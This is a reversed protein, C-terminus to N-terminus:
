KIREIAIRFKEEEIEWDKKYAKEGPQIRGLKNLTLQNGRVERLIYPVNIKLLEVTESEEAEVNVLIREEERLDMEKRMQQIRRIVERALGEALIERSIRADVYIKTNGLVSSSIYEPTTEEFIVEEPLIEVTGDSLTLEFKKNRDFAERVIRGDIDSLAALIFGARKKYKPGIKDMLPKVQIRIESFEENPELLQIEKANAQALLISKLNEIAQKITLSEPLITIRQVPRRLKLNAKQRASSIAEILGKIARMQDELTPVILEDKQKPWNCIHISEPAESSVNRVLNQYMEEVIYPAIPAMVRLLTTLTEYLTYYASLKIPDEVEIWTRKRILKVYWHSLDEIVFENLARAAKHLQYEGMNYNLEKLLSNLRSLLWKDEIYLYNKIKEFTVESPNFKDLCMFTTAFVYINWFIGFMKNITEVEELNFRLDEWPATTWLLYFRFVDAGYKEIVEEPKIVNGLSKSMKRGIKDLMFGHMLVSKYPTSNFAILGTGLQSYFWGRTQDHGECIFDAPWWEKFYHESRPYGLCAWSAVGSDIWVDLVDQVRAMRGGCNCNLTIEDIWPRHYDEPIKGFKQKIEEISGVVVHNKCKECIWIPIPIGWYRQRTICWDRINEIWDRFRASGAWEPIWKVKEIEELMRQRLATAKLFWQETARLIISTKCRWCHGYRHVITEFYLMLGKRKLDAIIEHNATKVYKGAYKGGEQTFNGSQDVPCFIPLANAKGIEFDEPGHGPAIHVCGTTGEGIVVIKSLVVRCINEFNLPVEEKLPHTYKLGEIKKGPFTELIKYQFKLKQALQEVLDKALIYIENGVQAKVYEFDSHVAVALNAPLTWPTTTWILIFENPKDRVPFKVYISPDEVDEYEIEYNSALATECRPCWNVVGLDKYLLGQEHSKKLTWWAANIFEPQVSMYANDWDMWVGIRRFQETMRDKYKLAFEKCKKVFERVGVKTEIEKKSKIGTTEEVKVEIPLGHMDWGPQDRVHYGLMTKHRIIVDKIVKNWATGLHIEGTTYPPGDMFFFKPGTKRKEKTKEYIKNAEWWRQVRQELELLNLQKQAGRIM